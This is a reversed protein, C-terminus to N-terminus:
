VLQILRRVSVRNRAIRSTTNIESEAAADQASPAVISCYRLAGKAESIVAAGEPPLIAQIRFSRPARLM